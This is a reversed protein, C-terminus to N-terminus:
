SMATKAIIVCNAELIYHSTYLHCGKSRRYQQTEIRAPETTVYVKDDIWEAVVVGFKNGDDQQIDASEEDPTRVEETLAVQM